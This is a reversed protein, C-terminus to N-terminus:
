RILYRHWNKLSFDLVWLSMERTLTKKKVRYMWATPSTLQCGSSKQAPYMFFLFIQESIESAKAYIETSIVMRMQPKPWRPKLRIEEIFETYVWIFIPFSMVKQKQSLNQNVHHISKTSQIEIQGWTINWHQELSKM